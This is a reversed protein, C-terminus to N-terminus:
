YRTIVTQYVVPQPYYVVTPQPYYVVPAPNRYVVRTPYSIANIVATALLAGAAFASWGHGGRGGRGAEASQPLVCSFVLGIAFATVMWLRRGKSHWPGNM